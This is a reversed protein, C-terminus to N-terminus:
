PHYGLYLADPTDGTGTESVFGWVRASAAGTDIRLRVRGQLPALLQAVDGSFYGSAPRAITLRKLESRGDDSYAILDFQPPAAGFIWLRLRLRHPLPVAPIDISRQAFSRLPISPIALFSTSGDYGDREVITKVAVGAPVSAIIFPHDSDAAIRRTQGPGLVFDCPVGSCASLHINVPRQGRNAMTQEVNWREVTGDVPQPTGAIPLLLSETDRRRYIRAEATESVLDYHREIGPPAPLHWVFISDALTFNATDFRAPDRELATRDIVPTRPRHKIPFYGTDAEYNELDALRREVAAYGTAHALFAREGNLVLVSSDRPIAREASVFASTRRAIAREHKALYFANGAAVISFVVILPLSFRRTLWPLVLLPVLLALRQSVFLGGAADNPVVFYLATMVLALVLFGDEDRRRREVIITVVI